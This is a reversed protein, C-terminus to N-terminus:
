GKKSYLGVLEGQALIHGKMAAQLEDKGSQNNLDLKKDLAYVKFHYHHTGGPPCPGMYANKGHTNRGQTGPASNEAIAAGPPINWMVWHYVTGKPADPDEVILALSATGIPTGKISIPPSINDGDCAYKQPIVGNATFSPSSVQLTATSIASM